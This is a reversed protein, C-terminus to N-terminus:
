DDRERYQEHCGGCARGLEAFSRAITERDGGDAASSFDAAAAQLTRIREAFDEPQEWIAPLAKSDGVGVGTGEPFLGPLREAGQRIVAAARRVDEVTGSGQRVYATIAKSSDGFSEMVDQREEVQAEPDQGVVATHVFLIMSAAAMACLAAPKRTAWETMVDLERRQQGLSDAPL